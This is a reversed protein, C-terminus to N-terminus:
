ALSGLADETTAVALTRLNMAARAISRRTSEGIHALPPIDLVIPLPLSRYPLSQTLLKGQANFSLSEPKGGLEIVTSIYERGHIGDRTPRVIESMDTWIQDFGPGCFPGRYGAGSVPIRGTEAQDWIARVLSPTWYDNGIANFRSNRVRSLIGAKCEQVCRMCGQCRSDAPDLLQGTDFGHERNVNYICATDKVCVTCKLCMGSEITCYEAIPECRPTLPSTNIHYREPM